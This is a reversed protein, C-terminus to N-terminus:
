DRLVSMMQKVYGVFSYVTLIVAVWIMISGIAYTGISFQQIQYGFININSIKILTCNWLLLGIATMQLGTKWKGSRSVPLLTFSQKRASWERLASVAMERLIIIIAVLINIRKLDLLTILCTIVLAKDAVPDLFAGFNSEQKWKRALYGDFYDTVGAITFIASLMIDKTNMTLWDDSCYHVLLFLPIVVIRVWTLQTPLARLNM